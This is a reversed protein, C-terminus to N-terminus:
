EAALIIEVIQMGAIAAMDADPEVCLDGLPDAGAIHHDREARPQPLGGCAAVRQEINWLWPLRQNVDIGIGLLDAADIRRREAHDRAARGKRRRDLPQLRLM